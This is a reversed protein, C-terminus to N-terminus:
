FVKIMLQVYFELGYKQGVYFDDEGHGPATHVCGTGSDTTVHEGLIVLSDRDYFPHQAVVRELENGKFTKLLKQSKGVM